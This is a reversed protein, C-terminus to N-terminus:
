HRSLQKELQESFLESARALNENLSLNEKGFPVIEVNPFEFKCKDAAEQEVSGALLIVKKEFHSAMRIIEYPGKGYLSTSDFRGEGTLILDAKQISKEM